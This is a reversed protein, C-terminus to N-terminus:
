RRDEWPVGTWDGSGLGGDHESEPHAADYRDDVSPEAAQPHLLARAEQEWEPVTCDVGECWEGFRTDSSDMLDRGARIAGWALALLLHMQRLRQSLAANEARLRRLERVLSGPESVGQLFADVRDQSFVQEAAVGIDPRIEAM